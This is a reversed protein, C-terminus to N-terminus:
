QPNYFSTSLCHFSRLSHFSHIEHGHERHEVFQKGSFVGSWIGFDCITVVFILLNATRWCLFWLTMSPLIFFICTSSASTFACFAFIFQFLSICRMILKPDLGCHRFFCPIDSNTLRQWLFQFMQGQSLAYWNSEVSAKAMCPPPSAREAGSAYITRAGLVVRATHLEWLAPAESWVM